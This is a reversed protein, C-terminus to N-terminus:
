RMMFHFSRYDLDRILRRLHATTFDGYGRGEVGIWSTNGQYALWDNSFYLYPNDVAGFAVVVDGDPWLQVQFTLGGQAKLRYNEWQLVLVAAGEVDVQQYYFRCDHQSRDCRLISWFASVLPGQPTFAGEARPLSGPPQANAMAIPRTESFSLWGYSGVWLRSHLAGGFRLPGGSLPVRALRADGELEPLRTGTGAIDIFPRRSVTDVQYTSTSCGQGLSGPSGTPGGSCWESFATREMVGPQHYPAGLRLTENRPISWDIGWKVKTISAEGARIEITDLLRDLPMGSGYVYDPSFGVRDSAAFTRFEGPEMVMTSRVAHEGANTVIRFGELDLTRTSLNRLEFWQADNGGAPDIMLETIALEGADALTEIRVSECAFYAPHLGCVEYSRSQGVPLIAQGKRLPRYAFSRGELGGPFTLYSEPKGGGLEQAEEDDISGVHFASGYRGDLSQYGITASAGNAEDWCHPNACLPSSFPQEPPRMRGYRFEFSGDSRLVVQFNLDFRDTATSGTGLNGKSWQIITSSADPSHVYVVGDNFDDWFPALHVSALLGTPNPLGANFGTGYGSVEGFSIYGHRFVRLREQTSGLYPFLFPLPISASGFGVFDLKQVGEIASIDSFAGPAGPGAEIESLPTVLAVEEGGHPTLEWEITVVDGPRFRGAPGTVSLDFTRPAVLISAERQRGMSEGVLRYTTPGSLSLELSGLLPIEEGAYSRLEREEEFIRLSDLGLVKWQLSVKEGALPAAPDALLLDIGWPVELELSPACTFSRTTTEYLCISYITTEAPHLTITHSGRYPTFRWSRGSLGGAVPQQGQARDVGGFHLLQAHEGSSEMYGITASSGNSEFLCSAPFCVGPTDPELRPPDMAGYRYEFSGDRHLVVMFNLNGENFALSGYNLSMKSWQIVYRDSGLPKAYVRGSDRSHLDDWFPMLLKGAHLQVPLASNNASRATMTGLYGDTTVQISRLEEGFFPFVFGGKFELSVNDNNSGAGILVADPDASLDLEYFDADIEEMPALMIPALAESGSELEWSLQVPKGPGASRTIGATLQHNEVEVMRIVREYRSGGRLEISYVTDRNPRAVWSGADVEGLDRTEYVVTAGDLIKLELGGRSTWSLTAAGGPKIVHPSATAEDLGFDVEVSLTKCVEQGNSLACFRYDESQNPHFTLTQSGKGRPYRFTRHQLGGAFVPNDDHSQTGGFHLTHGKTGQAFQYGITASSGMTENKCDPTPKCNNNSGTAAMTGYRYEFRGDPFLAVQFNLNNVVTTTSARVMSIKSWQVIFAGDVEATLLEAQNRHILQDWFPALEVGLDDVSPLPVNNSRVATSGSLSLYGHIALIASRYEEGMYPFAFPLPIEQTAAARNWTRVGPAKSIDAYRHATDTIEIMPLIGYLEVEEGSELRTADVTVTVPEGPRVKQRDARLDIELDWLEIALSAEATVGFPDVAQLTFETEREVREVHFSGSGGEARSLIEVGDQFLKIAETNFTAWRLTVGAGREVTLHDAEFSFIGFEGYITVYVTRESVFGHSGEALLRYEYVGARNERLACIGEELTAEAARCRESGGQDLVRLSTANSTKWGILFEEGIMTPAIEQPSLEISPRRSVEIEVSRSRRESGRAASLNVTTTAGRSFPSWSLEGTRGLDQPMPRYSFSRNSLPGHLPMENKFALQHSDIGDPLQFGISANEMNHRLTILSPNRNLYHGYRYEFSGDERLVVVFNASVDLYGALVGSAQWAGADKWQIALGKGGEDEILEWFINGEPYREPDWALTDWFPFLHVWRLDGSTPLKSITTPTVGVQQYDFSMIGQTYVMVGDRPAGDFPFRFGEPFMLVGCGGTAIGGGCNRLSLKTAGGRELDRYPLAREELLYTEGFGPGELVLEDAMQTSWSLTVEQGQTIARPQADFSTVATGAVTVVLEVERVGGIENTAILRIFTDQTPLFSWSGQGRDAAAIEVTEESPGGAADRRELVLRAAHETTWSVVVDDAMADDFHEPTVHVELEPLPHVEATVSASSPTSRPDDTEAHLTFVRVGEQSLIAQLSGEQEGAAPYITGRDDSIHFTPVNGAPDPRLKWSLEVEEGANLITPAVSFREIVAGTAVVFERIGAIAGSSNTIVLELSSISAEAPTWDFSGELIEGIDRTEYLIENSSSNTLVLHSGGSTLWRVELPEGLWLFDASLELDEILPAGVSVHLTATAVLGSASRARLEIRSEFHLPFSLEGSTEAPDIEDSQVENILLEIAAAGTTSWRLTLEEGSGVLRRDATFSDITPSEELLVVHTATTEGVQNSARLTFITDQSIEVEVSGAETATLPQPEHGERELSLQQARSVGAWSLTGRAIGDDGPALLAPGEFSGIIPKGEDDIRVTARAEVARGRADTARLRFLTTAEVFVHIAGEAIPADGLDLEDGREGQLLRLEVAGTTRWSIEVEGPAPLSEPELRFALITADSGKPAEEGGCAAAALTLSLLSVICRKLGLVRRVM